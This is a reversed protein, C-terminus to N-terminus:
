LRPNALKVYTCVGSKVDHFKEVQSIMYLKLAASQAPFSAATSSKRQYQIVLEKDVYQAIDVGLYSGYNSLEGTTISGPPTDDVLTAVKPLFWASQSLSLPGWADSAMAVKHAASSFGKFTMIQNGDVVINLSEGLQGISCLKGYTKRVNQLKLASDTGQPETVFLTRTVTKNRLSNMRQEVEQVFNDTTNAPIIIAEEITQVFSVFPQEPFGHDELSEYSLYGPFIDISTVASSQDLLWESIRDKDWTISVSLGEEIIKRNALYNLVRKLDLCQPISDVPIYRLTQVQSAADLVPIATTEYIANSSGTLPQNINFQVDPDGLTNFFASAQKSLFLDIPKDDVLLEIQAVASFIGALAPFYCEVPQGQANKPQIKIDLVKMTGPIASVGRPVKFVVRTNKVQQAPPDYHIVSRSM